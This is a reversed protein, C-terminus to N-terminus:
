GKWAYTPAIPIETRSGDDEQKNWHSATNYIRKGDSDTSYKITFFVDTYEDSFAPTGSPYGGDEVISLNNSCLMNPDNTPFFKAKSLLKATLTPWTDLSQVITITVLFGSGIVPSIVKTRMKLANDNNDRQGRPLYPIFEADYQNRDYDSVWGQPVLWKARVAPDIM